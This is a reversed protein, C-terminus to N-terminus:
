KKVRKEAQEKMHHYITAFANARSPITSTNIKTEKIFENIDEETRLIEEPTLGSLAQTLITVYGRVILSDAWGTFYLKGEKYHTTIYVNSVCGKVKQSSQKEEEPLPKLEEGYRILEQLKEHQSPLEKLTTILPQLNEWAKSHNMRPLHSPM